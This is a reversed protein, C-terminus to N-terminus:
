PKFLGTGGFTTDCTAFDYRVEVEIEVMDDSSYDLEGFKVDKIWANKLTWTEIANGASDLQKIKIEGLAGTSDKKNMTKTDNEDNAPKYGSTQIKKILDASADPNVPDVLTFSITNWTVRGPYYYTHNIFQHESETITFSPKSVKKVTYAPIDKLSLLWRYARKPEKGLNDSWFAM